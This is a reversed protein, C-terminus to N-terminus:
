GSIQCKWVSVDIPTVAGRSFAGSKPPHLEFVIGKSVVLAVLRNGAQIRKM